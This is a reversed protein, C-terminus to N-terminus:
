GLVDDLLTKFCELGPAYRVHDPLSNWLMAGNYIFSKKTLELRPKPVYLKHGTSHRTDRSSVESVLKFNKKLKEPLLDTMIKFMFICIHKKRRVELREMDSQEHLM